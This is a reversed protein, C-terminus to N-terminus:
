ILREREALRCNPLHGPSAPGIVSRDGYAAAVLV